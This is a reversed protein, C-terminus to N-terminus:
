FGRRERLQHLRPDHLLEDRRRHRLAGHIAAAVLLVALIVQVTTSAVFKPGGVVVLSLTMALAAVVFFWVLNVAASWAAAIRHGAPDHSPHTSMASADRRGATAADTSPGDSGGYVDATRPTPM